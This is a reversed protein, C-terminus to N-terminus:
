IRLYESTVEYETLPRFNLELTGPADMDYYNTSLNILEIDFYNGYLDDLLEIFDNIFESFYTGNLNMSDYPIEISSYIFDGSSDYQNHIESIDDTLKFKLYKILNNIKDRTFGSMQINDEIINMKSIM